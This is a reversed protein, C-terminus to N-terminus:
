GGSSYQVPWGSEPTSGTQRAFLVAEEGGLVPGSFFRSLEVPFDISHEGFPKRHTEAIASAPIPTNMVLAAIEGDVAETESTLSRRSSPLHSRVAIPTLWTIPLATKM